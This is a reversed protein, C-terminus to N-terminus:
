FPQSQRLHSHAGSRVTSGCGPLGGVARWSHKAHFRQMGPNPKRKRCLIRRRGSRIFEHRGAALGLDLSAQRTASLVEPLLGGGRGV